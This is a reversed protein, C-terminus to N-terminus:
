YMSVMLMEILILLDIWSPDSFLNCIFLSFRLYGLLSRISVHFLVSKLLDKTWIEGEEEEEEEDEGNGQWKVTERGMLLPM